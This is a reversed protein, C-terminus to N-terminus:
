IGVAAAIADILDNYQVKDQYKPLIAKKVKEYSHCDGKPLGAALEAIEDIISDDLAETTKGFKRQSEKEAARSFDAVFKSLANSFYKVTNKADKITSPAEGVPIGLLIRYGPQRTSGELFDLGARKAVSKAIKGITGNSIIPSFHPSNEDIYVYAGYYPDLGYSVTTDLFAVYADKKWPFEPRVMRSIEEGTYAVPDRRFRAADDRLDRYRGADQAGTDFPAYKDARDRPSPRFPRPRAENKYIKKVQM